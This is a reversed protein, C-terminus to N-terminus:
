INCGTDHQALIKRLVRTKAVFKKVKRSLSQKDVGTWLSQFALMRSPMFEFIEADRPWFEPLSVNCRSSTADWFCRRRAWSLQQSSLGFTDLGGFAEPGACTPPFRVSDPFPPYRIGWFSSKSPSCSLWGVLCTWVVGLFTRLIIHSHWRQSVPPKRVVFSYRPIKLSLVEKVIRRHLPLLDVLYFVNLLTFCM